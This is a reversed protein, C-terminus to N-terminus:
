KWKEEWKKQEYKKARYVVEKWEDQNKIQKVFKKKHALNKHNIM